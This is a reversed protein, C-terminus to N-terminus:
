GGNVNGSVATLNVPIRALRTDIPRKPALGRYLPPNYVAYEMPTDALDFWQQMFHFRLM